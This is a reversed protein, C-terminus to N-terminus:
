EFFKLIDDIVGLCDEIEKDTLKIVRKSSTGFDKDYAEKLKIYENAANRVEEFRKTKEQQKEIREQEKRALEEEYSAAEEQTNFEKGNVRYIVEM